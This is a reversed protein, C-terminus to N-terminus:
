KVTIIINSMVPKPKGNNLKLRVNKIILTQGKRLKGIKTKMNSTVKNSKSKLVISGNSTAFVMDFSTVAYKMGDFLMEKRDVDVSKAGKIQGRTAKGDGIINAFKINPDPLKKVRFEQKGMSRLKGDKGKVSVSVICTRSSPNPIVEYSGGSGTVKGGSVNISIDKSSFGSVSVSLPNKVDKYFINMATPSVVTSPKAAIFTHEFPYMVYENTGPKKLKVLGGWTKEGESTPKYGYHSVGDKVTLRSANVPNSVGWEQMSKGATDLGNGVEFEPNQTSSYAAVIVEAKFSDGLVVYNSNPIVKVEIKDFKFDGADINDMLLSLAESESNKIQNQFMTIDTIVAAIPAHYFHAMHWPEPDGDHNVGDKYEFRIGELDAQQKPPFQSILKDEWDKIKRKMELMTWEGDKPNMEESGLLITQAMDIDGLAEVTDLTIWDTGNELLAPDYGEVRIIIHKKLNEFYTNLEETAAHVAKAKNYFPLVKAENQSNQKEFENLTSQNKGDFALNTETMAGNIIVFSNLVSKTVNMALLALLVLYMMGIMKQRPTEKDGSM